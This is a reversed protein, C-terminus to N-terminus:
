LKELEVPIQVLPTLAVLLTRNQKGAVIQRAM